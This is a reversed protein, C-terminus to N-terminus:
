VFTHYQNIEILSMKFIERLKIAIIESAYKIPNACNDDIKQAGNKSAKIIM